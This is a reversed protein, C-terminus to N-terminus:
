RWFRGDDFLDRHCVRGPARAVYQAKKGYKKEFAALIHQLRPKEPLENFTTIPKDMSQFPTYVSYLDARSFRFFFVEFVDFAARPSNLASPKRCTSSRVIQKVSERLGKVLTNHM